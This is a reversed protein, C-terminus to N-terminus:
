RDTARFAAYLILAALGIVLIVGLITLFFQTMTSGRGAAAASSVDWYSLTTDAEYSVGEGDRVTAHGSIGSWTLDWRHEHFLLTGSKKTEVRIGDVDPGGAPPSLTFQPACGPIVIGFMFVLCGSVLLNRIM